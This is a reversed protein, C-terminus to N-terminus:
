FFRIEEEDTTGSLKLIVHVHRPANMRSLVGSDFLDARYPYLTDPKWVDNVHFTVGQATNAEETDNAFFQIM